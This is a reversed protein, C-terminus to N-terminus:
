DNFEEQAKALRKNRKQKLAVLTEVLYDMYGRELLLTEEFSVQKKALDQYLKLDQKSRRISELISNKEMQFEDEETIM